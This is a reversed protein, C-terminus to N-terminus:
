QSLFLHCFTKSFLFEALLFMYVDSNIMLRPVLLFVLSPFFLILLCDFLHYFTCSTFLLIFSSDSLSLRFGHRFSSALSSLPLYHFLFSFSSNIHLTIDAYEYSQEICRMRNREIPILTKRLFWDM